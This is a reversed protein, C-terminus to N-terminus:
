QLCTLVAVVLCRANLPPRAGPLFVTAPLLLLGLHPLAPLPCGGKCFFFISASSLVPDYDIEYDIEVDLDRQVGSISDLVLQRKQLSMHCPRGCISWALLLTLSSQVGTCDIM